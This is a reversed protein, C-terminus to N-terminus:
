LAHPEISELTDHFEDESERSEGGLRRFLRENYAKVRELEAALQEKDEALGNALLRYDVHKRRETELESKAVAVWEQYAKIHTDRRGLRARLQGETEEAELLRTNLAAEREGARELDAHLRKQEAESTRLYGTLNDIKDEYGAAYTLDAVQGRLKAEVTVMASKQAEWREREAAWAEREQTIEAAWAARKEEIADAMADEQDERFRLWVEFEEWGDGREEEAVEAAEARSRRHRWFETWARYDHMKQGAFGSYAERFHTHEKLWKWKDRVDELEGELRSIRKANLEADAARAADAHAANQNAAAADKQAQLATKRYREIKIALSKGDEAALALRVVDERLTDREKEARSLSEEAVALARLYESGSHRLDTIIGVAEAVSKPLPLLDHQHLSAASGRRRRARGKLEAGYSLAKDLMGPEDRRLLKSAKRAPKRETPRGRISELSPRGGVSANSGRM